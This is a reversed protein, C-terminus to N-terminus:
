FLTYRAGLLAVPRWDGAPGGLQPAPQELAGDAKKRVALVTEGFANGEVSIHRDKYMFRAWCLLKGSLGEAMTSAGARGSGSTDLRAPRPPRSQGAEALALDTTPRRLLDNMFALKSENM